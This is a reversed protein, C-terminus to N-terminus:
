RAAWASPRLACHRPRQAPHLANFAPHLGSPIAAADDGSIGVLRRVTRYLRMTPMAHAAPGATCGPLLDPLFFLM